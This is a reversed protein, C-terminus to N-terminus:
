NSKIGQNDFKLQRVRFKPFSHKLKSELNKADNKYCISFITSGSGSLTSMLAGNNLATNQVDILSPMLQIRYEEHFMDKSAERLLSWNESFIAGTLLSSRSLNFISEEKTYSKPLKKRSQKTSIPKNPIVVVATVEDPMNKKISIVKEDKVISVVFGGFVAPAINDPHKELKLSLNLLEKKTIPINAVKYASAIASTIVASSSGLGRGLPIDNTFQFRFNRQDDCITEYHKNFIDVFMSNSKLKINKSSEGRISISHFKSETITVENFLQLSIGLTDFGPGMNASTAPVKITM